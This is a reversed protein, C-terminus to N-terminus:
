YMQLVSIDKNKIGIILGGNSDLILDFCARLRFCVFFMEHSRVYDSNLQINCLLWRILSCQWNLGVNIADVEM